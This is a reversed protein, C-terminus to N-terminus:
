NRPPLEDKQTAIEFLEKVTYKIKGSMVDNIKRPNMYALNLYRYVTTTGVKEDQLLDDVSGHKEYHQKYKLATAFANVILHNNEVKTMLGRHNTNYKILQQGKTFVIDRKIIITDDTKIFNIQESNQNIFEPTIFQTLTKVDPKIFFTINNDAVIARDILARILARQNIYDFSEFNIQKLIHSVDEPLSSLNANLFEVIINKAIPDIDTNQIYNKKVAYYYIPRLHTKKTVSNIFKKGYNTYVKGSLLNPSSNSRGFKGSANEDLRQQVKNFLEQTIIAQHEGRAITKDRKHEIYGLYLKETLMRKLLTTPIPKGGREIGDATKWKKSVIGISTLYKVTETMSNLRLYSEFIERVQAVETENIILKKDVIDYGLYPIGGMWIGKAKSARIKDRVRESSVEREFQAFSLLMNLTLKGMSNSTDFSQTISVFNCNYKDFTKMMTHFDLISRSLRDVKYVVVVQVLGNSMDILMQQLGPREMTGGSIGGDSYTKYYEWGQFAQSLIYNKGAQEQNDLSNFEQELGHETSKRVYVACNIKAM